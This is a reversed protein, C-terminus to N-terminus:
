LVGELFFNFINLFHLSIGHQLIPLGLIALTDSRGLNIDIGGPKKTSISYGITNQYFQLPSLINLANKFFFLM